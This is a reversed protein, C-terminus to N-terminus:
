IGLSLGIGCPFLQQLQPPFVLRLLFCSVLSRHLLQHQRTANVAEEM